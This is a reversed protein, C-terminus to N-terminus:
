WRLARELDALRQAWTHGSRVHASAAAGLEARREPQRALSGVRARLDAAGAFTEFHQGACLVGGLLRALKAGAPAHMLIPWGLGGAIPLDPTLPDHRGGFVAARPTGVARGHLLLSEAAHRVHDHTRRQWGKGVAALGFGETSLTQVIRELVAAPILAREILILMRERLAPEGLTLGTEREALALLAVPRAIEPADWRRRALERMCNWLSEHTPQVVGCSAPADDPLDAVVFVEDVLDASPQVDPPAAWYFPVVRVPAATSAGLRAEVTPSAALRLPAALPVPGLADPDLVWECAAERAPLPLLSRAHNVCISAGPRFDLVAECHGLAHVGAPREGTRLCVTWGRGAAAEALAAAAADATPDFALSLVAARRTEGPAPLAAYRQALETMRANRAAAVRQAVRLCVGHVYEIRRAEVEPLRLINGPPLLGTEASLLRELQTEEQPAPIFHVRGADVEAALDHVRLVAAVCDPDEVFVFVAKRPALRDLLLRLEAGTGISPLTANLEGPYYLEVLATARTRPAASGGLWSEGREASGPASAKDRAARLGTSGDLAVAARFDTVRAQEIRAAFDPQRRRLAALNRPWIRADLPADPAADLEALSVRTM